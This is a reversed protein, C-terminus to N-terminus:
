LCTARGFWMATNKRNAPMAMHNYRFSVVVYMGAAGKVDVGGVRRCAGQQHDMGQQRCWM